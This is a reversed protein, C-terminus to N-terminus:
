GIRIQYTGNVNQNTNCTSSAFVNGAFLTGGSVSNFLGVNSLAAVATLFSATSNFTFTWQMTAQGDSVSRASFGLVLVANRQTSDMIEGPLATANSAPAGGTGLAVAGVQLSGASGALTYALFKEIGVNTLVNKQWGSDGVIKSEDNPATINLRYFGRIRVGDKHM